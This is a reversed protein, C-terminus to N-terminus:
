VQLKGYRFTLPIYFGLGIAVQDGCTLCLVNDNAIDIKEDMFGLRQNCILCRKAM